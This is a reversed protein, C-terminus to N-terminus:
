RTLKAIQERVNERRGSRLNRPQADASDWIATEYILTGDVRPRKLNKFLSGPPM